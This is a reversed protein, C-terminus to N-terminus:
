QNTGGFFPNREVPRDNTRIDRTRYLLFGHSMEITSRSSIQPLLFDFRTSVDDM